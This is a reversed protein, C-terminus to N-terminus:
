VSQVTTRSDYVHAIDPTQHVEERLREGLSFANYGRSLEGIWLLIERVELHVFRDEGTTDEPRTRPDSQCLPM